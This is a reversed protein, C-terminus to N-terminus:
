GILVNMVGVTKGGEIYRKPVRKGPSCIIEYNITDCLSALEEASIEKTGQRGMLVVEDSVCVATGGNVIDTVDVMFQDMCVRGCVPAYQGGILVRAKGSLARFYGDAYGVPVTAIISERKTTYTCGYSLCTGAPVKKVATLRAKFTMAPRLDGLTRTVDAPHFGYLIIGARVGDLHMEPYRLIAASNAVHRFPIELGRAKLTDCIQNFLTFQTKTYAIEKEGSEDSVAFHTFIGEICLGPLKGIALIEDVTNPDEGRFGVRGMGTDLKIHIKAVKGAAVAKQSITEAFERTFVIQAVDYTLMTETREPELDSLLLIPATIGHQRLQIAEDLQSVALRNVGNALICKSVEVAGHGYGDAKVVGIIEAQKSTLRRIEQTNHKIADLDIELWARSNDQM